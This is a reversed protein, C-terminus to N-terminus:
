YVRSNASFFVIPTTVNHPEKMREINKSKLDKNIKGYDDYLYEIMQLLTVNHYKTVPDKIGQLYANNIAEILQNKLAQM